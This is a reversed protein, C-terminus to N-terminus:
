VLNQMQFGFTFKECIKFNKKNSNEMLQKYGTYNYLIQLNEMKMNFSEFICDRSEKMFTEEKYYFKESQELEVKSINVDNRMEWDGM